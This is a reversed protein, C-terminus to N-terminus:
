YSYANMIGIGQPTDFKDNDHGESGIKAVFSLDEKLLKIIRHNLKDMVYLHVAGVSVDSPNNFETDGSGLSGVAQKFNFSSKYRKVIRNNNHDAIYIYQRDVTIGYPSRFQDEGDGEGGVSLVFSFDSKKFKYIHNDTSGSVYLYTDDVAIGWPRHFSGEPYLWETFSDVYELTEKNFKHVRDNLWDTCYGFTEDIAVGKPYFLQPDGSVHHTYNGLLSYGFKYYKYIQKNLYDCIFLNVPDLAIDVPDLFLGPGTGYQAFDNIYSWEDTARKVIRQNDSVCIFFFEFDESQDTIKIYKYRTKSNKSDAIGYATLKVNFFDNDIKYTHIPHQEDSFKGDGFSWLWSTIDGETLDNFVVELPVPGRRPTGTFDATPKEPVEIKIADSWPSVEGRENCARIAVHANTGAIFWDGSVYATELIAVEAGRIRYREEPMVWRYSTEDVGLAIYIEILYDEKWTFICQNNDADFWAEICTPLDPYEPPCSIDMVPSIGPLYHHLIQINNAMFANRPSRSKKVNPQYDLWNMGQAITTFLWAAAAHAFTMNSKTYFYTKRKRYTKVTRTRFNDGHKYILTGGYRHKKTTGPMTFTIKPLKIVKTLSISFIKSQLLTM